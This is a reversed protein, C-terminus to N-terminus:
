YLVQFNTILSKMNLLAQEPHRFLYCQPDNMSQTPLIKRFVLM